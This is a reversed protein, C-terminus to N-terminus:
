QVRAVAHYYQTPDNGPTKSLRLDRPYVIDSSEVTFGAETILADIDGKSKFQYIHDIANSDIVTTIFARGGKRMAKRLNRAARAPNEVHELIEGMTALDAPPVDGLGEERTIDSQTFTCRSLPIQNAELLGKSFALAHRSVDVALATGRPFRQLGALLTLGHGVGIELLRVPQDAPVLNLFARHQEFIRVHVPWFLQTLLLGPLYMNLMLNENDYVRAYVEEFKSGTYEGSQMFHIQCRMYEHTYELLSELMGEFPRGRAACMRELSALVPEVRDLYNQETALLYEVAPALMSDALLAQVAASARPTSGIREQDTPSM